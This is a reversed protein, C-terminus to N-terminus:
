PLNTGGPVSPIAGGTASPMKPMAGQVLGPLAETVSATVQKIASEKASEILADKNLYVYAGAGVIAASVGFSTLALLNILKQM